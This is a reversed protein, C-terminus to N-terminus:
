KWSYCIGAHKIWETNDDPSFSHSKVVCNCHLTTSKQSLVCWSILATVKSHATVKHIQSKKTGQTVRALDILPDAFLLVITNSIPPCSYCLFSYRLTKECFRFWLVEASSYHQRHYILIQTVANGHVKGQFFIFFCLSFFIKWASVFIHKKWCETSEQKRQSFLFHRRRKGLWWSAIKYLLKEMIIAQQKTTM